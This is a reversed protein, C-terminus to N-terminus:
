RTVEVELADNFRNFGNFLAAVAALEVIEGEDFCRRLETWTDERVNHADLTMQEAFELAARETPDLDAESGRAEMENITEQSM